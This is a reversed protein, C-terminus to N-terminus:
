EDAEGPDQAPVIELRSIPVAVYHGVLGEDTSWEPDEMTMLGFDISVPMVSRVRGYGRYSWGKVQQLSVKKHANALIAENWDLGEDRTYRFGTGELVGPPRTSGTESIGDCVTLLAGDVWVEARGGSGESYEMRVEM